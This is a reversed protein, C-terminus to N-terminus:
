EIARVGTRAVLPATASGRQLTVTGARSRLELTYLLMRDSDTNVLGLRTDANVRAPMVDALRPGDTIVLAGNTDFNPGCRWLEAGDNRTFYYIRPLPERIRDEPPEPPNLPNPLVITFLPQGTGCLEPLTTTDYEIREGESVESQIFLNLRSFDDVARQRLELSSATRINGIVITAAAAALVSGLALYMLLEVLTFGTSRARHRSAPQRHTTRLPRSM